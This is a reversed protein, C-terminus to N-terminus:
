IGTPYVEIPVDSLRISKGVPDPPPGGITDILVLGDGVRLTAVGDPDLAEIIADVQNADGDLLFGTGSHAMAIRDWGVAHLFTLEADTSEGVRVPERGHWVGIFTGWETSFRLAGSLHDHVGEVTVDM